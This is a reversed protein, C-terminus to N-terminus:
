ASGPVFDTLKHKPVDYHGSPSLAVSAEASSKIAMVESGNAYEVAVDAGKKPVDYLSGIRAPINSQKSPSEESLHINADSPLSSRVADPVDYHGTSPTPISAYSVDAYIHKEQMYGDPTYTDCEDLYKNEGSPKETSKKHNAANEVSAIDMPPQCGPAEMYRQNTFALGNEADTIFVADM